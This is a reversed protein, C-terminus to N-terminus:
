EGRQWSDRLRQKADRDVAIRNDIENRVENAKANEELRDIKGKTKASRKGSFWVAALTGILAVLGALWELPIIALIFEIM